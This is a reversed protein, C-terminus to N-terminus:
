FSGDSLVKEMITGTVDAAPFGATSLIAGKRVVVQGTKASLRDIERQVAEQFAPLSDAFKEDPVRGDSWIVYMTLSQEPDFVAVGSAADPARDPLLLVAFAAAQVAAVLALAILTKTRWSM